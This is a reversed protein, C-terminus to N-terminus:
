WEMWAVFLTGLAAVIIGVSIACVWWAVDLVTRAVVAKQQCMGFTWHESDSM